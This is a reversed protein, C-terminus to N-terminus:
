SSIVMFSFRTDVASGSSNFTYITVSTATQSFYTALAPSNTRPTVFVSYQNNSMPTSYNIVYIGTGNKTVTFTYYGNDQLVVGSDSIYGAYYFVPGNLM